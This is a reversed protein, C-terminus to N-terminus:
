GILLGYVLVPDAPQGYFNSLGVLEDTDPRTVLDVKDDDDDNDNLKSLFLIIDTFATNESFNIDKISNSQSM